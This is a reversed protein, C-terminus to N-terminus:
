AAGGPGDDGPPRRARARGYIRGAARSAGRTTRDVTRGLDRAADGLSGARTPPPGAAPAPPDTSPTTPPGPATRRSGRAPRPPRASRTWQTHVTLWAVAAAALLCMAWALVDTTGSLIPASALAAIVVLDLVRHVQPHIWRVAGMPADTTAALVFLLGGAVAVYTAARGANISQLVLLVALLYEVTQHTWLALRIRERPRAPRDPSV